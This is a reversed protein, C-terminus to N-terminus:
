SFLGSVNNDTTRQRLEAQLASARALSSGMQVLLDQQKWFANQVFIVIQFTVNRYLFNEIEPSLIEM